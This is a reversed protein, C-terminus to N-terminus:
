GMRWRIAAYEKWREILVPLLPAFASSAFCVRPSTGYDCLNSTCLIERFMESALDDRKHTMDRVDELVAVALVDFESSYTGYLSPFLLWPDFCEGDSHMGDAPIPPLALLASVLAAAEEQSDGPRRADTM